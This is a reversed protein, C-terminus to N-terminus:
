ARNVPGIIPQHSRRQCALAAGTCAPPCNESRLARSRLSECPGCPAHGISCMAADDHGLFRQGADHSCRLVLAKLCGEPLQEFRAPTRTRDGIVQTDSVTALCSSVGPSAVCGTLAVAVAVFSFRISM